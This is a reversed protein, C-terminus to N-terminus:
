LSWCVVNNKLPYFTPVPCKVHKIQSFLRCKAVGDSTEGRFSTQAVVSSIGYQDGTVAWIQNTSRIPRTALLVQKLWDSSHKLIMIMIMMTTTMTIMMIIILEFSLCVKWQAGCSSDKRSQSYVAENDSSSQCQYGTLVFLINKM